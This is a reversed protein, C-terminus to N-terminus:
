RGVDIQQQLTSLVIKPNFQNNEDVTVNKLVEKQIFTDTNYIREFGEESKGKIILGKLQNSKFKKGMKKIFKVGITFNFQVSSLFYFTWESRNSLIYNGCLM